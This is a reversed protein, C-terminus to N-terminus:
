DQPKEVVSLDLWGSPPLVSQRGKEDAVVIKFELVAPVEVAKLSLPITALRSKSQFSVPNLKDRFEVIGTYPPEGGDILLTIQTDGGVAVGGAPLLVEGISPSEINTTINTSGFYFGVITGFIGIMVTLVEKAMSFREKFTVDSDLTILSSLFLTISIAVTGVGFLVTILGRAKDVDAFQTPDRLLFVMWAIFLVVLLGLLRPIWIASDVSLRRGMQQLWAGWTSAGERDSKDGEGSSM